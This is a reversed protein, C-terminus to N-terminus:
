QRHVGDGSQRPGGERYAGAFFFRSVPVLGLSGLSIRVNLDFDSGPHLVFARAPPAEPSEYMGQQRSSRGTQPWRTRREASDPQQNM